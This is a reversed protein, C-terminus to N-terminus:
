FISCIVNQSFLQNERSAERSSLFPLLTSDLFQEEGAALAAQICVEAPDQQQDRRIAHPYMAAAWAGAMARLWAKATKHRSWERHKRRLRQACNCLADGGQRRDVHGMILERYGQRFILKVPSHRKGTPALHRQPPDLVTRDSLLAGEKFIAARQSALRGTPKRGSISTRLIMETLAVAHRDPDRRFPVTPRGRRINRLKPM